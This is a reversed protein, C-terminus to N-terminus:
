GSLRFEGSLVADFEEPAIRSEHIRGDTVIKLRDGDLIKCGTETHQVVIPRQVFISDPHTSNLWNVPIFDIWEQACLDFSYRDKWGGVHQEKLFYLGEATRTLMFSLDDQAVPADLLDLNMPARIGGVGFGLDCLWRDGEVTAIVGVHTRPLRKSSFIPRASVFQYPVDLAQLAMAFLGNVEYCYGGRGRSLIKEVIDEPTLSPVRGARVDLNEFPITFLQRRMLTRLLAPSVQREGDHGIRDFYSSLSFNKAQM